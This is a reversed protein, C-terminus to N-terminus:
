NRKATSHRNTACPEAGFTLACEKWMKLLGIPNEPMGIQDLSLPVGDLIAGLNRLANWETKIRAKTPEDSLEYIAAVAGQMQANEDTVMWHNKAAKFCAKIRGELTTEQAAAAKCESAVIALLAQNM